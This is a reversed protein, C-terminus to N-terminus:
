DCLKINGASQDIVEVHVHEVELPEALLKGLLM